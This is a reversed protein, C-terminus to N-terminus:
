NKRLSLTEEIIHPFLTELTLMYWFFLLSVISPVFDLDKVGSLLTDVPWELGRLEAMLTHHGRGIILLGQIGKESRAVAYSRCLVGSRHRRSMEEPNHNLLTSFSLLSETTIPALTM